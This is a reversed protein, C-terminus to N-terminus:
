ILEEKIWEKSYGTAGYINQFKPKFVRNYSARPMQHHKFWHEGVRLIKTASAISEESVV